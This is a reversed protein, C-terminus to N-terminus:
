FGKLFKRLEPDVDDEEIAEVEEVIEAEEVVDVADLVEVADEVAEVDEVVEVSALGYDGDFEDVVEVEAIVDDAFDDLVEVEEVDDPTESPGATNGSLAPMSNASDGGSFWTADALSAAPDPNQFKSENVVNLVDANDLEGPAVTPLEEIPADKSGASNAGDPGHASDKLKGLDIIEARSLMDPPFDGMAMRLAKAPGSLSATSEDPEASPAAREIGISMPSKASDVADKLQAPKIVEASVAEDRVHVIFRIPGLSLSAGNAVDERKGPKLRTGDLYTGNSSDLDTVSVGDRGVRLFCHRRSIQPASLRLNCDSGRGIVIDHRVTIRRVNSPQDQLELVVKM